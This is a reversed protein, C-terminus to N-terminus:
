AAFSIAAFSFVVAPATIERNARFPIDGSGAAPSDLIRFPTGTIGAEPCMM